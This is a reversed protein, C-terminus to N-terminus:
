LVVLLFVLAGPLMLPPVPLSPKLWGHPTLRYLQRGACYPHVAHARGANVRGLENLGGAGSSRVGSSTRGTTAPTKAAQMQHGFVRRAVLAGVDDLVNSPRRTQELAEM